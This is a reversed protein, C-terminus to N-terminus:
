IRHPLGTLGNSSWQSSPLIPRYTLFIYLELCKELLIIVDNPSLPTRHSLSWRRRTEEQHYGDDQRGSCKHVPGVCWLKQNGWGSGSEPEERMRCVGKLEKCLAQNQGSTTVPHWGFIKCRCIYYYWHLECHPSLPMILSQHLQCILQYKMRHYCLKIIEAFLM